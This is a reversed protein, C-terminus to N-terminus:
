KFQIQQRTKGSTKDITIEDGLVYEAEQQGYEEDNLDNFNDVPVDLIM